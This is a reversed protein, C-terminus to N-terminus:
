RFPKVVSVVTGMVAYSELDEKYIFIPDTSRSSESTLVIRNNVVDVIFKKINASGEISSIVYEGDIPSTKSSDVIVYDGHQISNGKINAQNMSNGVAKLAYLKSIDKNLQDSSISLHGLEQSQTLISAPGCNAEGIIPIQILKTSNKLTKKFNRSRYFHLINKKELQELHYKVKQPHFVGIESGIERLPMRNLDRKESLKLIKEQIPHLNM